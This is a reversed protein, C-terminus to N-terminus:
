PPAASAGAAEASAPGAASALFACLAAAVEAPREQMLQHSCGAVVQRRAEAGKLMPLLRESQAPDIAGDAEGHLILVPATVQSLLAPGPFELQRYYAKCMHMENLGNVARALLLVERREPAADEARTEPHLAMAEFGASLTPQLRELIWLPLRFLPGRAAAPTGCPPALLVLAHISLKPAKAALGLALACGMSHGLLVNRGRGPAAGFRRVLEALDAHHEAFSYLEWGVPKESRGCGLLDLAVITHSASLADLQDRWQVMSACSGHLLFAVDGACGGVRERRFVALNRGRRLELVEVPMADHACELARICEADLTRVM